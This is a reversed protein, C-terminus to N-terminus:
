FSIRHWYIKKKPILPNCNSFLFFFWLGKSISNAPSFTSQIWFVNYDNWIKDESKNFLLLISCDLCNKFFGQMKKKWANWLINSRSFFINCIMKMESQFWDSFFWFWFFTHEIKKRLFIWKSIYLVIIPQSCLAVIGANRM